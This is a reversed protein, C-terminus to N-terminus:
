DSADRSSGGSRLWADRIQRGHTLIREDRTGTRLARESLAHAERLRGAKFYAWALADETFIDHRVAAVREGIRIAEDIRRDHDALLAALTAETQAQEPGALDEALRYYHEAQARDGRQAYLDGIRAALDLTPTRKLQELYIALAREVDGRSAAVKGQGIRALPYNPFAFLARRYERSAAELDGAKLLLEGVQAAYWAHAELDQAPTAKSAM